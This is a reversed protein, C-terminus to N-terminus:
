ELTKVQRDEKWLGKIRKGNPYTFVGEGHKLGDIFGGSYEEGSSFVYRGQGHRKGDKFEGIYKAGGSFVYTGKGNRRDEVFQGRYIDGNAYVITGQGHKQGAKFDGMYRDGNRSYFTGKGMIVDDRFEGVYRDGGAFLLTGTGSKRDDRYEGYYKDGNISLLNGRGQKMDSRFSGEYVDGNKYRYEGWGEFLGNSFVGTYRDGNPFTVSSVKDREGAPPLVPEAEPPPPIMDAKWDEPMQLEEAAAHNDTAVMAVEVAKIVGAASEGAQGSGTAPVPGPDKVTENAGPQEPPAEGRREADKVPARALAENKKRLDETLASIQAKLEDIARSDQSQSAAVWRSFRELDSRLLGKEKGREAETKQLINTIELTSLKLSDV